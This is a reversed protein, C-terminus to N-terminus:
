KRKGNSSAAREILECITDDWGVKRMRPFAKKQFAELRERTGRRIWISTYERPRPRKSKTKKM